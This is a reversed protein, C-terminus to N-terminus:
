GGAQAAERSLCHTWRGGQPLQSTRASPTLTPSPAPPTPAPPRGPALTRWRRARQTSPRRRREHCTCGTLLLAQCRATCMQVLHEDALGDPQVPSCASAAWRLSSSTRPPTTAPLTPTLHRRTPANHQRGSRLQMRKLSARARCWCSAAPACVCLCVNSCSTSKPTWSINADVLVSRSASSTLCTHAPSASMAPLPLFRGTGTCM